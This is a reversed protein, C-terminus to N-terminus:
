RSKNIGINHIGGDFVIKLRGMHDSQITWQKSNQGDIDNIIYSQDKEYIPPTTLTLKVYPMLEGDPLFTRVSCKFGRKDVNELITFGPRFRDSNIEYEWITFEPYIDIHDWKEPQKLPDQFTNLIFDFMEGLGCTSHAADFVKYEYNDMVQPWIQNMDRHYPRLNDKDGYHFRVNIGSYNDYMDMNRYEVPFKMPGITFEPSGCFNGVASILHPYKASIFFSTFGGMSLGAIARHGRDPITRFNNDFYNVFEPFYIPFQRHTEVGGINYPSLDYNLNSDGNFGDLKVVIVKNKAVYNLINDGGNDDGTDYNSYDDGVPGFYRQAWGHFFYIVPYRENSDTSYGTPLFARFKRIEGFAHSYHWSDVIQVNKNLKEPNQQAQLPGTIYSCILTIFASSFLIKFFWM